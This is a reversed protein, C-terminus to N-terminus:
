CRPLQVRPDHKRGGAPQDAGAPLSHAGEEPGADIVEVPAKRTSRQDLQPPRGPEDFHSRPAARETPTQEHPSALRSPFRDRKKRQAPRFGRCNVPLGYNLPKQWYESFAHLEAVMPNREGQPTKVRAYHPDDYTFGNLLTPSFVGVSLILVLVMWLTTQSSPRLVQSTSAAPNM